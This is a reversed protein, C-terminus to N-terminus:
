QLICIWLNITECLAYEWRCIVINNSRWVVPVAYDMYKKPEVVFEMFLLIVDINDSTHIITDAHCPPNKLSTSKVSELYFKFKLKETVSNLQM